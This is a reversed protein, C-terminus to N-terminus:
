YINRVTDLPLCLLQINKADVYSVVQLSQDDMIVDDQDRFSDIEYIVHHLSDVVISYIIGSGDDMSIFFSLFIFTNSVLMTTLMPISHLIINTEHSTDIYGFEYVNADIERSFYLRENNVTIIKTNELICVDEKTTIHYRHVFCEDKIYYVFEGVFCVSKVSDIVAKVSQTVVDFEYLNIAPIKRSKSTQYISVYIKNAFFWAKSNTGTAYVNQLYFYDYEDDQMFIFDMQNTQLNLIGLFFGQMGDEQDMNSFFYYHKEDRCLYEIVGPRSLKVNFTIPTKENTQIDLWYLEEVFPMEPNSLNLKSDQMMLVQMNHLPCSIVDRSITRKSQISVVYDKLMDYKRIRYKVKLQNIFAVKKQEYVNVDQNSKQWSKEINKLTAKKVKFANIIKAYTKTLTEVDVLEPENNKLTMAVQHVEDDVGEYIENGISMFMEFGPLIVQKGHKVIKDGVVEVVDDPNNILKFYTDEGQSVLWACFYLFGDDSFVDCVLQYMLALKLSQNAHQIYLGNCGLLVQQEHKSYTRLLQNAVEVYENEGDPQHEKIKSIFEWFLQKQKM